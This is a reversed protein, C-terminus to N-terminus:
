ICIYLYRSRYLTYRDSWSYYYAEPSGTASAPILSEGATQKQIKSEPVIKHVTKFKYSWVASSRMRSDNFFGSSDEYPMVYASFLAFFFFLLTIRTVLKESEVLYILAGLCIVTLVYILWRCISRVRAFNIFFIWAQQIGIIYCSGHHIYYVLWYLIWLMANGAICM